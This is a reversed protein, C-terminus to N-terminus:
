SRAAVRPSTVQPSTEISLRNQREYKISRQVRRLGRKISALLKRNQPTDLPSESKTTRPSAM